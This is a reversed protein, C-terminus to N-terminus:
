HTCPPAGSLVLLGVASWCRNESAGTIVALSGAPQFPGVKNLNPKSRSPTDITRVVSMAPADTASLRAFSGGLPAFRHLLKGVQGLRLSKREGNDVGQRFREEHKIVLELQKSAAAAEVLDEAVIRCRGMAARHKLQRTSLPINRPQPLQKCRDNIVMGRYILKSNSLSKVFSPLRM